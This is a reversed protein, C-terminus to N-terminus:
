NLDRAIFEYIEEIPKGDPDLVQGIAKIQVNRLARVTTDFNIKEPIQHNNQITAEPFPGYNIYIDFGMIKLWEQNESGYFHTQHSKDQDSSQFTRGWIKEEYDAYDEEAILGRDPHYASSPTTPTTVTKKTEVRLSIGLKEQTDADVKGTVSLGHHKQFRCVGLKTAVNFYGECDLETDIGEALKDKTYTSVVGNEALNAFKQFQRVAHETKAGFMGDIILRNQLLGIEYLYGNLRSQLLKVFEVHAEKGHSRMGSGMSLDPWSTVQTWDHASQKTAPRLSAHRKSVMLLQLEKVEDSRDGLSLNSWKPEFSYTIVEREQSAYGEQNITQAGVDGKLRDLMDEQREKINGLWQPVQEGGLMYSLKPRAKEQLQGIHEFARYLYGSERFAIGFYGRVLRNGRSVADWIYSNYGFIPILNEQLEFQLRTIEDVWVDEFYITVDSSSFYTEPFLQHETQMKAYTVGQIPGGIYNAVKKM